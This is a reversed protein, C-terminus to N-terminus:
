VCFKGSDFVKIPSVLILAKRFNMIEQNGM